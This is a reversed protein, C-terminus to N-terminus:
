QLESAIRHAQEAGLRVAAAFWILWSAMGQPTGANYDRLARVYKSRGLTLLGAEPITLMDPDLGLYRALFGAVVKHTSPYFKVAKRFTRTILDLFRRPPFYPNALYCFDLVKDRWYGGYRGTFGSIDSIKKM